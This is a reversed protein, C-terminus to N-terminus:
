AVPQLGHVEHQWVQDALNGLSQGPHGIAGAVRDREDSLCKNGTALQKEAAVSSRCTRRNHGLRGVAGSGRPILQGPAYHGTISRTRQEPPATLVGRGDDPPAVLDGLEDDLAEVGRLAADIEMSWGPPGYPIQRDRWSDFRRQVELEDRNLPGARGIWTGPDGGKPVLDEFVLTGAEIVEGGAVTRTEVVERRGTALDVDRWRMGPLEGRRLGTALVLRWM